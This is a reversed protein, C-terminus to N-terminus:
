DSKMERVRCKRGLVIPVGVALTWVSAPEPISAFYATADWELMSITGGPSGSGVQEYLLALKNESEWLAQDYSSSEWNGLNVNDLQLFDWNLRDSSYGIELCNNNDVSRHVVLVRDQKDVLVLPRGLERVNNDNTPVTMTQVGNVVESTRHTIPSEIWQGGDWWDLMYQRVENGAEHEPAYWTAILPRDQHDVAMTTTNILSSGQPINIIPTVNGPSLPLALSNGAADKWTKGEDPSKVLMIDHNTQYGGTERWVWSMLLNGKSDHVLNNTYASVSTSTGDIVKTAAFTKATADYRVFHMDGNGSGGNRYAFLLDKSGPINYFEPYTVASTATADGFNATAKFALSTWTASDVRTTTTIYRMPDAHVGFAISMFGNGDIGISIACHDDGIISNSVSFGTRVTAWNNTGIPRRGVCVYRYGNTLSADGGYFAAYEFGNFSSIANRANAVVNIDNAVYAGGFIPTITVQPAAALAVRPAVLM